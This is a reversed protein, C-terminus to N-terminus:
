MGRILLHAMAIGAALFVLTALISMISRHAIGMFTHGGTCGGSWRAGFGLLFGGMFLLLIKLFFNGLCLADLRGYLLTWNWNHSHAVFAGIPLGIIFWIKWTMLRCTVLDCVDSYASSVGFLRGTVWVLGFVTLGLLLGTLWWPWNNQFLFLAVSTLKNLTM